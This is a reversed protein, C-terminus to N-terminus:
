TKLRVLKASVHKGNITVWLIVRDGKRDFVFDGLSYAVTGKKTSLEQVMHPGSGVVLTSGAELAARALERQRPMVQSTGEVGWHFSTVVIDAESQARVVDRKVSAVSAISVAPCAYLPFDTYALFGVRVKGVKRVVLEGAGAAGIGADNLIRVTDLFGDLGCDSTHNNAVSVVDIGAGKLWGVRQPNARLRVVKEVSFPRDTLPCELNAFALDARRLTPASLAFPDAGKREIGRGLMVDGVFALTLSM